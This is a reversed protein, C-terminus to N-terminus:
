QGRKAKEMEAEARRYGEDLAYVLLMGIGVGVWVVWLKLIVERNAIFAITALVLSVFGSLGVNLVLGYGLVRKKSVEEAGSHSVLLFSVVGCVILTTILQLMPFPEEM